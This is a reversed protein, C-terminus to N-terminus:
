SEQLTNNNNGAVAKGEIHPMNKMNRLYKRRILHCIASKANLHRILQIQGMQFGDLLLMNNYKNFIAM